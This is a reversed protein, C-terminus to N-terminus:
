INLSLGQNGSDDDAWSCWNAHITGSPRVLTAGDEVSLDVGELEIWCDELRLATHSNGDLFSEGATTLKITIYRKNAVLDRIFQYTHGKITEKFTIPVDQANKFRGQQNFQVGQPGYSEINERLLAPLQTSQVLFRMDSNGEFTMIFEDSAVGEGLGLLKKYGKKIVPVNGHVDSINAM